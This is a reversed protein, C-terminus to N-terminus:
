RVAVYEKVPGLDNHCRLCAARRHAGKLALGTQKAHDFEFEDRLKDWSDPLHCLSCDAPFKEHPVVPGWGKSWGQRPPRTAGCTVCVAATLILTLLVVLRSSASKSKM